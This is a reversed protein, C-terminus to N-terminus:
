HLQASVTAGSLVSGRARSSQSTSHSLASPSLGKHDSWGLGGKESNCLDTVSSVKGECSMRVEGRLKEEGKM